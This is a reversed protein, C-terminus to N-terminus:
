SSGSGGAKRWTAIITNTRLDVPLNTLCLYNNTFLGGFSSFAFTTPCIVPRGLISYLGGSTMANYNTKIVIGDVFSAFEGGNKMGVFISNLDALATNPLPVLQAFNVVNTDLGGIALNTATTANGVLNGYYTVQASVTLGALFLLTTLINKM